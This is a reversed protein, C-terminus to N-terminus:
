DPDDISIVNSALHVSCFTNMVYNYPIGQNEEVNSTGKDLQLSLTSQKCPMALDWKQWEIVCLHMCVGLEEMM